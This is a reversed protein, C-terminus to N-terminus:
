RLRGGDNIGSPVPVSMLWDEGPIFPFGRFNAINAFRNRCTSARKDCGPEILITDEPGLPARLPSWLEILRLGGEMRDHRVTGTLGSAQGSLVSLRGREFWRPEFRSLNSFRFVRGDTSGGPLRASRGPQSTDFRCAADGLVASCTTQYLRGTPRNLAESLGRLEAHFAGDGRRIEGLTGRFRLERQDPAAWNVAWLRVDAADYRGADIDAENIADSSLIGLAETNDVALGTGQMVAKATMGSDPRFAIGGFSLPRDHDTFGLTVRDTRTVAWCRAITTAGTSLHDRLSM